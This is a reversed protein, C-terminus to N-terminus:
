LRPPQIQRVASPTEGFLRQYQQRFRSPTDFGFSYAIDKIPLETTMITDRVAHLKRAIIFQYPSIGLTDRFAYHLSRYQVGVATALDEASMKKELNAAVYNLAADVTYARRSIRTNGGEGHSYSEDLADRIERLTITIAQRSLDAQKEPNSSTRAENFATTLHEVLVSFKQGLTDAVQLELNRKAQLLDPRVLKHKRILKNELLIDITDWESPYVGRYRYSGPYVSLQAPYVNVGNCFYASGKRSVSVLTHGRPVEFELYDSYAICSHGIRVSGETNAFCDFRTRPRGQSLQMSHARMNFADGLTAAYANPEHFDWQNFSYGPQTSDANM